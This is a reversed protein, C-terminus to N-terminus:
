VPPKLEINKKEIGHRLGMMGLGILATQIATNVDVKGAIWGGLAYMIMAMAVVYTKMGNVKIEMKM